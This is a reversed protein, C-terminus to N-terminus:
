IHILSLYIKSPLLIIDTDAIVQAATRSGTVNTDFAIFSTEDNSWFQPQDWKYNDIVAGFARPNNFKVEVDDTNLSRGWHDFMVKDWHAIIKDTLQKVTYGNPNRQSNNALNAGDLAQYLAERSCLFPYRNLMADSDFNGKSTHQYTTSYHRLDYGM